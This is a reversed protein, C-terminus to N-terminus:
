DKGKECHEHLQERILSHVGRQLAAREISKGLKGQDSPFHGFIDPCSDWSRKERAEWYGGIYHYTDSGKEKAFWKPKWGSEQMKRAQRQRQELRLKESNAMDYEGNELSRQDPRLRSDTPPLKEKLQSTLENLTIAFRTLNYRTPFKPPKSRKWLLHAEPVETGKGKGSSEGNMYYLSEDWKGFLTAVTKGNKDQVIGQVQHPNRDIISQEKFKLKCSYNHNGEVRMTGYHDCYLKGLILNYISTTVKSWQFVEGDDFELTLVGVPDLQISRGWFKSKLNSDGWFKWGTGECHCAVIMPHHSVKESFFRLGKDPYEAEYTEGLLPNFPKCHRGETSAYGSVAFAAVNLIRMLSNGRKGWEYARDILYSYELDEFCKQLSSLPENFYVPLCVKTLDKGINDKIMSWLSVGKEKEVPEPLRKRRKVHPFNKGVSKISPDVDDESEFSYLEEDSSFSSTRLDSGCSKFSSSSLFDRTDFFANEDDDTEEEAADGREHDDESDSATGSSKDQRSGYSPELEKLQRQSEDVVTNELDVKETELQRLTDLLLWHKQKLVMLQSQLVAFESRVIQESDHIAAESLGEELLRQRLKETSVVVNDVPAMLESNSLRPFMDKVAQLADMWAMRDDRTEARLHLRKTGTFISFRKDDSRSERISSVKLHVEGVPKRRLQTGGTKRRSIRRLSDEGIVRSGKETELSVVIKDPGHIKYYSLVGDQLVFWRPRWGKGYNVWKYLVGSIGSGVLDNIKVERQDGSLLLQPAPGPRPPGSEAAASAPVVTRQSRRGVDNSDSRRGSSSATSIESPMSPPPPLDPLASSSRDNNVTSVCCFPHMILRLPCNNSRQM